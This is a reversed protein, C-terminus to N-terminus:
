DELIASVDFGKRIYKGFLSVQTYRKSKINYVLGEITTALPLDPESGDFPKVLTSYTDNGDYAYFPTQCMLSDLMVTTISGIIYEAKRITYKLDNSDIEYFDCDIYKRYWAPNESPHLRLVAKRIGLEKLAKEIEFVYSVSSGRDSLNFHSSDCPAGCVARSLVVVNGSKKENIPNLEEIQSFVPHGVVKIKKSDVGCRVYNNKIEDGWVYLMDARNDDINNYRGPLGHLYIATKISIEKCIDIVIRNMSAMDNPFIVLKIKNNLLFDIICGKLYYVDMIFDASLLINLDGYNIQSITNKLRSNSFVDTLTNWPFRQINFGKKQLEDNVSFYAESLISDKYNVPKFKRLVAGIYQRINRRKKRYEYNFKFHDGFYYVRNDFENKMWNLFERNNPYYENLFDFYYM